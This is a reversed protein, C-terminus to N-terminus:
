KATLVRTIFDLARPDNSQGLWFMARKRVALDRNMQAAEILKDVGEGNPLRSLAFVAREEIATEPDNTAADALTGAVKAGAKQGV